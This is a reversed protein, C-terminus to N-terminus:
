APQPATAYIRDLRTLERHSVIDCFPGVDDLHAFVAYGSILFAHLEKLGVVMALGRTQALTLGILPLRAVRHMNHLTAAILNLQHVRQAYNDAKRYAQEYTTENLPLPAHWHHLLRALEHDLQNTLDLLELVQELDNLRLGPVMHIFQGLRRAGSDRADFDHPGYLENFFFGALARYRADEALDRYDRRLRDSQFHQITHAYQQVTPTPM